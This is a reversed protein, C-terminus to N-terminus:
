RGVESREGGVRGGGGDVDCSVVLVGGEGTSLVGVLTTFMGCRLVMGCNVLIAVHFMLLCAVYAPGM